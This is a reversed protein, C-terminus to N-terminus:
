PAGTTLPKTGALPKGPVFTMMEPVLKMPAVATCNLPNFAVEKVLRGFPVIEATTGTFALGAVIAAAGFLRTLKM